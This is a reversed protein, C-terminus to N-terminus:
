LRYNWNEQSYKDRYLQQALDREEHTLASPKLIWHFSKVYGNMVLNKIQPLSIKEKTFDSLNAVESRISQVGRHKGLYRPKNKLVSKLTKLDSKVLISQHFIVAKKGYRGAAGAIKLKHIQLINPPKFEIEVNLKRLGEIAGQSIQRYFDLIDASVLPNERKLVISYNLNGLDHFVTGGGTFRRTIEVKYQKCSPINIEDTVTQNAGLVVSPPNRWFRLTEPSKGEGVLQFLAEDLALNLNPDQFEFDLFRIPYEVM